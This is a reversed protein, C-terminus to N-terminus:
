KTCNTYRKVTRRKRQLPKKSDNPQHLVHKLNYMNECPKSHVMVLAKNYANTPPVILETATADATGFTTDADFHTTGTPITATGTDINTTHVPINSNMDFTGTGTHTTAYPFTPIDGAENPDETPSSVFRTSSTGRHTSPTTPHLIPRIPTNTSTRTRTRTTTTPTNIFHNQLSTYLNSADPNFFGELKKMENSLKSRIIPTEQGRNQNYSYNGPFYDDIADLYNDDNVDIENVQLIPITEDEDNETTLTPIAEIELDPPIQYNPFQFPDDDDDDEDILAAFQNTSPQSTKFYDGYTQHMFKMDRSIIVQRTQINYVRITDPTHDIARGLFIGIIGRNETKSKLKKHNITVVIEGFPKLHLFYEPDKGYFLKFPPVINTPTCISNIVDTAHHAAEAWLQQRLNNPLSASNLMSRM